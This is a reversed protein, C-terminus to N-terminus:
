AVVGKVLYKMLGDTIQKRTTEGFHTIDRIEDVYKAYFLSTGVELRKATVLKYHQDGPGIMSKQLSGSAILVRDGAAPWKVRRRRLYKTDLEKWKDGETTNVSIWRKRQANQYQKYVVRNLYGQILRDGRGLMGELDQLISKNGILKM